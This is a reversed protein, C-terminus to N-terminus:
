GSSKMQNATDQDIEALQKAITSIHESDRVLVGEYRSQIETLQSQLSSAKNIGATNGGNIFSFVARRIVGRISQGIDEAKSVSSIIDDKMTIDGNM